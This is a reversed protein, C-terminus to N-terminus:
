ECCWVSCLWPKRTHPYYPLCLPYMYIYMYMRLLYYANNTLTDHMIEHGAGGVCVEYSHQKEVMHVHLCM